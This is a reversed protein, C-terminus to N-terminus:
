SPAGVAGTTVKEPVEAPRTASRRMEYLTLGIYGLGGLVSLIGGLVGWSGPNSPPVVLATIGLYLFSIGILIGLAKWGHGKTATLFGGLILMLAIAASVVWALDLASESTTDSLQLSINHWVNPALCLAVLISLALLPLSWTSARSFTFLARPAPYALLFLVITGGFFVLAQLIGVWPLQAVMLLVMSLLFFQALLPRTHGRWLLCLLSGSLLFVFMVGAAAEHWRQMAPHWTPSDTAGLLTWPALLLSINNFGVTFVLTLLVTFVGFVIMRWKKVERQPKVTVSM